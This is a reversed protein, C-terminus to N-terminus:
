GRFFPQVSFPRYGMFDPLDHHDFRGVDVHWRVLRTRAGLDHQFVV